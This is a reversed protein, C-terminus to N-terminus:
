FNNDNSVKLKLVENLKKKAIQNWFDMRDRRPRQSWFKGAQSEIEPFKDFEKKAGMKLIEDLGNKSNRRPM